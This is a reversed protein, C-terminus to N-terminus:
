FRKTISYRLHIACPYQSWWPWQRLCYVDVQSDNNDNALVYDFDQGDEDHVDAQVEDHIHCM